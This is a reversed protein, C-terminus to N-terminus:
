RCPGWAALLDPLDSLAVQGDGDLDEPCGACPGWQSLLQTLDGFAVDGSGDFDQPCAIEGLAADPNILVTLSSPSGQNGTLIISGPLYGLLDSVDLVGSSETGDNGVTDGILVQNSGDPEM